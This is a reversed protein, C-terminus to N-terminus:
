RILAAGAAIFGIWLAAGLITGALVGRAGGVRNTVCEDQNALERTVSDRYAPDDEFVLALAHTAPFPATSM